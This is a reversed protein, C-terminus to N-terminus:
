LVPKGKKDVKFIDKRIGRAAWVARVASTLQRDLLELMTDPLSALEEGKEAFRTLDTIGIGEPAQISDDM